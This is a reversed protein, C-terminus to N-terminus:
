RQRDRPKRQPQERQKPRRAQLTMLMDVYLMQNVFKGEPNAGLDSATAPNRIWRQLTSKPTTPLGLDPRGRVADDFTVRQRTVHEDAEAHTVLVEVQKVAERIDVEAGELLQDLLHVLRSIPLRDTATLGCANAIAHLSATAAKTETAWVLESPLTKGDGYRRHGTVISAFNITETGDLRGNNHSYFRLGHETLEKWRRCRSRLDAIPKALIEDLPMEIRERERRDRAANLLDVHRAGDRPRALDDDFAEKFDRRAKETAFEALLCDWEDRRERLDEAGSLAGCSIYHGIRVVQRQIAWATLDMRTARHPTAGHLGIVFRAADDTPEGFRRLVPIVAQTAVALSNAYQRVSSPDSYAHAKKRWIEWSKIWDRTVSLTTPGTPCENPTVQVGLNQKLWDDISMVQADLWNGLQGLDMAQALDTPRPSPADPAILGLRMLAAVDDDSVPQSVTDANGAEQRVQATLIAMAEPVRRVAVWDARFRRARIVLQEPPPASNALFWALAQAPTHERCSVVTGNDAARTFLLWTGTLPDGDCAMVDANSDGASKGSAWTQTPIESSRLRGRFKGDPDLVQILAKSM